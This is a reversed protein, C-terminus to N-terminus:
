IKIKSIEIEGVSQVIKNEPLIYNYNAVGKYKYGFVYIRVKRESTTGFNFCYTDYYHFIQSGEPVILIFSKNNDVTNYLVLESVNDKIIERFQHFRCNDDFQKLTSGDKYIVLWAWETLEVIETIGDRTYTYEKKQADPKTTLSIRNKTNERTSLITPQM